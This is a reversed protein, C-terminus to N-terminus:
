PRGSIRGTRQPNARFMPWPSQALPVSRHLASLESGYGLVYVTGDPAVLPSSRSAAYLWYNWIWEKDGNNEPVTMVFGDRGTFVVTHDALVAAASEGFLDPRLLNWFGRRWLLKGSSSVACHNTNVSLYISGDGGLVPSSSSIGGTRLAWRRTGDPNLAYLQGDVSTFYIEGTPGIAPSSIIAGGTVFEWRKAGEPTLAYFKRDNSGFYLNGATDIAASSAIFGDTAFEWKKQGTLTLAYFKKDFSGCYITGDAGLAPSADIWGGTKFEWRKQGAADVAYLRRNRAGFYVTGDVGVAPSSVTDARFPFVWRATGDPNIAHLRGDWGTVYIVGDAGLAPSSQNALGVRAQWLNTASYHLNETQGTQLSLGTALLLLGAWFRHHHRSKIM